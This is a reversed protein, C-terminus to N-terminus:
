KFGHKCCGSYDFEISGDYHHFCISANTCHKGILRPSSLRVVCRYLQLHCTRRQLGRHDPGALCLSQVHPDLTACVSVSLSHMNPHNASDRQKHKYEVLLMVLIHGSVTVTAAKM